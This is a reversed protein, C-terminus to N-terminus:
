ADGQAARIARLVLAPLVRRRYTDSARSDSPFAESMAIARAAARVGDDSTDALTRHLPTGTCTGIAIEATRGVLVAVSLIAFDGAVLSLKEYHARENVTGRPLHVATVIEGPELATAFFGRFFQRAPVRRRRSLGAVEVEANAAVLAVPYDAAPDAHAISGGITGWARIAPYAVVQATKALLAALSGDFRLHAVQDHTTMAGIRVSGDGFQQAGRLEAIRRLSVVRSPAVLGLNMMAVLSQGGALCRADEKALARCADEVTEPAAYEVSVIGSAPWSRPRVRGYM